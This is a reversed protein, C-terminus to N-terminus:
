VDSRLLLILHIVLLTSTFILVYKSGVDYGFANRVSNIWYRKRIPWELVVYMM